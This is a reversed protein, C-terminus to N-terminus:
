GRTPRVAGTLAGCRRVSPAARAGAMTNAGRPRGTSRIMAIQEGQRSQFRTQKNKIRRRVQEFM